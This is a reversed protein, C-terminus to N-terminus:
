RSAEVRRQWLSEFGLRVAPTPAAAGGWRLLAEVRRYARALVEDLEARHSAVWGPLQSWFAAADHELGYFVPQIGLQEDFWADVRAWDRADPSPSMLYACSVVAASLEDWLIARGDLARVDYPIKGYDFGHDDALRGALAVHVLEHLLNPLGEVEICAVPIAEDGGPPPTFAGGFGDPDLEGEGGRPARGCPGFAASPRLARVSNEADARIRM